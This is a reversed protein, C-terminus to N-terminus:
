VRSMIPPVSLGPGIQFIGLVKQSFGLGVEDINAINSNVPSAITSHIPPGSFRGLGSPSASLRSIESKGPWASWIM